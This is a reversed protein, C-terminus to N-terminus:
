HGRVALNRPRLAVEIKQRAPNAHLGENLLDVLRDAEKGLTTLTNPDAIASEAM